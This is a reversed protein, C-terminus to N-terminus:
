KETRGLPLTSINGCYITEAPNTERSIIANVLHGSINRNRNGM